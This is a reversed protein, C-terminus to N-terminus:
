EPQCDSDSDAILMLTRTRQVRNFKLNLNTFRRPAGTAQTFDGMLSRGLPEKPMVPGPRARRAGV